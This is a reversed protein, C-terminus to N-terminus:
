IQTRRQLSMQANRSDVQNGFGTKRTQRGRDFVSRLRLNLRSRSSRGFRRPGSKNSVSFLFPQFFLTPVLPEISNQAIAIQAISMQAIFILAISIASRAHKLM